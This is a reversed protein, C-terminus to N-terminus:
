HEHNVDSSECKSNTCVSTMIDPYKTVTKLM